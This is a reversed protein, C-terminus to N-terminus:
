PFVVKENNEDLLDGHLANYELLAIKCRNKLDTAELTTIEDDALGPNQVLTYYVKFNSMGTTQIIFAYKVDSYTGFYNSLRMYPYTATDWNDPKGVKNKLVIYLRNTEAAGEQFYANEKVKFIVHGSQETFEAYGEPKTFYIPFAAQYAGKELVYEKVTYHIKDADGEVVEITFPRDFDAPIGSLRVHFLISDVEKQYAFNYVISDQVVSERGLWINLASRSPDYYFKGNERCGGATALLLGTCIFIWRNKM